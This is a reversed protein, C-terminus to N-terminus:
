RRKRGKSRPLRKASCVRLCKALGKAVRRRGHITLLKRKPMRRRCQSQWCRNVYSNMDKFCRSESSFRKKYVKDSHCWLRAILEAKKKNFIKETPLSGPLKGAHSVVSLLLAFFLILLQSKPM